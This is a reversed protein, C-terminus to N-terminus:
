EKAESSSLRKGRESLREGCGAAAIRDAIDEPVLYSGPAFELVSGKVPVDTRKTVRINFVPAEKAM